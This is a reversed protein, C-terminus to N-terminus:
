ADRYRPALAAPDVAARLAEIRELAEDPLEAKRQVLELLLELARRRAGQAEAPKGLDDLLDADLALLRTYLVLRQADSVLSVATPVDVMRVMPGSPGLVEAMARALEERAGATDGEERRKLARAIAAAMAEILRLIFDRQHLAM